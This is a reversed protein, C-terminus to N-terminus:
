VVSARFGHRKVLLSAIWSVTVKMRTSIWETRVLKSITGESWTNADMPSGQCLSQSIVINGNNNEICQLWYEARYVTGQDYDVSECSHASQSARQKTTHYSHMAILFTAQRECWQRQQQFAGGVAESQECGSTPRWLHEDLTSSHWHICNKGGLPIWQCVRAKDVSRHSVMKVFQGEVAM